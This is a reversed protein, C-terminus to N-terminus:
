TVVDSYMTLEISKRLPHQSKLPDAFKQHCELLSSQNLAM